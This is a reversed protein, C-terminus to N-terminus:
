LTAVRRAAKALALAMGSGLVGSGGTIVATSGRIDFLTQLDIMNTKRWSIKHIRKEQKIKGGFYTKWGNNLSVSTLSLFFCYIGSPKVLCILFCGRSIVNLIHCVKQM